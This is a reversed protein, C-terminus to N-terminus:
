RSAAAVVEDLVIPDDLVKFHGMAKVRVNTAGELFSGGPIHPDFAPCISTIRGNLDTRGALGVITEDRPGLSQVVPTPVLHALRSGAFPTAIAVIRLVRAGAPESALVQKGILGGKSHAVIVVDRLDHAVLYDGAVRAGDVIGMTNRELERLVHVPHGASSLRDALRRLVTWDEYVGPLLLIPRGSGRGYGAPVRWDILGKALAVVIWVYDLAWSWGRRLLGALRRAERRCPPDGTPMSM